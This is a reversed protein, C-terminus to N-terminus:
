PKCKLVHLARQLILRNNAYFNAALADAPQFWAAATIESRQPVLTPCTAEVLFYYVVKDLRRGGRTIPYAVRGLPAIVQGEVGTEEAIERLAAVPPTEGTEIHGKPLTWNGYRDAILLLQIADGNRLM